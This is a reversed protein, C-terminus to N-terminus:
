FHRSQSLLKQVLTHPGPKTASPSKQSDDRLVYSGQLAAGSFEMQHPLLGLGCLSLAVCCSMHENEDLTRRDTLVVSRGALVPSAEKRPVIELTGFPSRENVRNNCM